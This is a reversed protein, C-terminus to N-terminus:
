MCTRAPRIAYFTGSPTGVLLTEDTGGISRIPNIANARSVFLGSFTGVSIGIEYAAVIEPRQRAVPRGRM